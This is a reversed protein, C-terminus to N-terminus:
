PWDIGKRNLYAKLYTSCVHKKDLIFEGIWPYGEQRWLNRGEESQILESLSTDHLNRTIAWQNFEETETNVFGFNAWFYYGQWDKDEDDYPSPARTYTRLKVFQWYRAAQVQNLFLHTGIGMGRAEQDVVMIRNNIRRIDSDIMRIVQYQDTTVQATLAGAYQSSINVHIGSITPLPIGGCLNLVDAPTLGFQQMVCQTDDVTFEIQEYLEEIFNTLIPM